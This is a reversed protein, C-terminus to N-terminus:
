PPTPTVAQWGGSCETVYPYYGPPNQCYYWFNPDLQAPSQDDQQQEIYVPASQQVVVQAPPAVIVPTQLPDWYGPYFAWEGGVLAWRAEVFRYGPREQEWHGGMWIHGQGSWAWYGPAWLYGRRAPPIREMRAAPPRVGVHINVSATQAAVTLTSVGFSLIGFCLGLKIYISRMTMKYLINSM